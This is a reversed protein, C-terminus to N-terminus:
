PEPRADAGPDGAVPRGGREHEDQHEAGGACAQRRQADVAVGDVVDFAVRAADGALLQEGRVERGARAVREHQEGRRGPRAAAAAACVVGPAALM